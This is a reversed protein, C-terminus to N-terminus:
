SASTQSQPDRRNGGRIWCKATSGDLWGVATHALGDSTGALLTGGVQRALDFVAPDSLEEATFWRLESIEEAQRSEFGGNVRGAYVFMILSGRDAVAVLAEPTIDLGTEELAERRAAAELSEGPEAMGGVMLWTAPFRYSNRALLVRGDRVPLVFCGVGTQRPRFDGEVVVIKSPHSALPDALM